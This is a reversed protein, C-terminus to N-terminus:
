DLFEGYSLSGPEKGHACRGGMQRQGSSPSDLGCGGMVNSLGM